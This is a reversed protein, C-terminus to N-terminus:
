ANNFANWISFLAVTRRATVSARALIVASSALDFRYLTNDGSLAARRLFGGLALRPNSGCLQDICGVIRTTLLNKQALGLGLRLLALRRSRFGLRLLVVITM